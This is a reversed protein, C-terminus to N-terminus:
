GIVTVRYLNAAPAAAFGITVTNNSPVTIYANEIDGTTTNRVVVEVDLTGLNHTITYITASTNLTQSYKRPVVSTDIAVQGATSLIGTGAGVAFVNGTLTLGNGNTYAIAAGFQVWTQNTTGVTIPDSTQLYWQSAAQSTGGLVLVLAGSTLTGQSADATRTWAGSSAAYIGNTSATTQNKVLVRQGATLTVGDVTQLGSLTINATTAAVVSEKPDIGSAASQATADVYAKTAADTSLTPTALNTIKHSNLSVDNAPAAFSDLTYGQVTTALDSITSSLQTGTHNARALPNTALASIAISGDTLAAADLPRWVTGNWVSIVKTGTNYYVQGPNPSSPAASLGHIVANRLELGILNIPTNFIQEIAM